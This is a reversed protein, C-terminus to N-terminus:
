KLTKYKLKMKIYNLIPKGPPTLLLSGVQWHLLCLVCPNLGQTLFVDQLLFHYGVGTNKGPFDWPCLLWPNYDMSNCLTPYSQLVPCCCYALILPKEPPETTFFRGALEPSAPEIGPNSLCGPPPFPLESWYEKKSCGMSLPAQWTVTWLAAFLRVCSLVCACVCM